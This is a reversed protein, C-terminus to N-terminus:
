PCACPRDRLYSLALSRCLARLTSTAASPFPSTKCLQKKTPAQAVCIGFDNRLRELETEPRRGGRPFTFGLAKLHKLCTAPNAGLVEAIATSSIDYRVLIDKIYEKQLSEPLAKLEAFTMRKGLKVSYDPGSMERVEKETYQKFRSKGHRPRSHASKATIAKERVDEIFTYTEDNM